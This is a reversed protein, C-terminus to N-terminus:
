LDPCDEKLLLLTEPDLGYLPLAEEVTQIREDPSGRFDEPVLDELFCEIRYTTTQAKKLLSDKNRRRHYEIDEMEVTEGNPFTLRRMVAKAGDRTAQLLRKRTHLSRAKELAVTQEQLCDLFSFKSKSKKSRSGRSKKIRSEYEAELLALAVEQRIDNWDLGQSYELAQRAESQHIKLYRDVERAIEEASMQKLARPAFAIM